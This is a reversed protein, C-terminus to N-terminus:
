FYISRIPFFKSLRCSFYFLFYFTPYTISGWGNNMTWTIQAHNGTRVVALPSMVSPRGRYFFMYRADATYLIYKLKNILANLVSPTLILIDGDGHSRSTVSLGETHATQGKRVPFTHSILQILAVQHAELSRIRKPPRQENSHHLLLLL